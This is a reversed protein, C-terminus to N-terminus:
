FSNLYQPELLLGKFLRPHNTESLPAASTFILKKLKYSVPPHNELSSECEIKVFLGKGTNHGFIMHIANCTVLHCLRLINTFDDLHM